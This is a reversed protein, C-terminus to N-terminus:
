NELVDGPVAPGASVSVSAGELWPGQSGQPFGTIKNHRCDRRSNLHDNPIPLGSYFNPTTIWHLRENLNICNFSFKTMQWTTPENTPRSFQRYQGTIVKTRRTSSPSIDGIGPRWSISSRRPWYPPDRTFILRSSTEPRKLILGLKWMRYRWHM